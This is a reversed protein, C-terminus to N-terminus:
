YVGDKGFVCASFKMETKNLQLPPWQTAGVSQWFLNQREKACVTIFYFNPTSYDYDPLRNPKRKPLEM